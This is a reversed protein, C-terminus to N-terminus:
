CLKGLGWNSEFGSAGCPVSWYVWPFPEELEVWKVLEVEIVRSVEFEFAGEIVM